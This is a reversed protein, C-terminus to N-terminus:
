NILKINQNYVIRITKIIYCYFINRNNIGTLLQGIKLKKNRIKNSNYSINAISVTDNNCLLLTNNYVDNLQNYIILANNINNNLVKINILLKIKFKYVM